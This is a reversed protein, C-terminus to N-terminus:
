NEYIKTGGFLSRFFSGIKDFFGAKSKMEISDTALVEGDASYLTATFTTKGNSDSVIRLSNGNNIEETKFKGNSATWKVYSGAPATGEINAHLKIGDKHRIETRSPTQISFAYNNEEVIAYYSFHTTEFVMNGNEYTAPMKEVTGTETNVYYVFSRNPDYGEPLPMRITVKGTPQTEVGNVTMTIDYIFKQSADLTTDIVDFANGDFSEEVIIEVVGSYDNGNYEMSVGTDEDTVVAKVLMPITEEAVVEGCVTCKKVKLGDAEYTADLIVEWNGTTHGTAPIVTSTGLTDGCIACVNYEMGAVTCTAPITITKSTHSAAVYDSVYSDGCVSCTYTTYGQETCTPATVTAEYAHGALPLEANSGSVVVGCDNCVTYSNNGPTTCTSPTAAVNTVNSHACEGSENVTIACTKNYVTGNYTFKATITANGAGVATVVGNNVTAVSSNSTIWEINQGSPTTTATLTVSNGVDLTNATSSLSITPRKVTVIFTTTKGNYTVTVTKTGVASSSFGSTTFGSTATATSGDSYTLTLVLGTTDLSDGIYYTTKSPNTSITISELTKASVGVYVKFTTIFEGYTVTITQEGTKLANFGSVTYGTVASTSGDTYNAMVVLGTTDLSERLAYEVKNPLTGVYIGTVKPRTDIIEVTFTKKYTTGAPSTWQVTVTCNGEASSDFGSVVYDTVVETTNDSYNVTVVMGTNDFDEGLVYTMKDPNSTITISKVDRIHVTIEYTMGSSTTATIITDGTSQAYIDHGEIRVKTNSATLTVVDNANEPYFEFEARYTEGRDLNVIESGDKLIIGQAPISIDVFKFGYENAFTEAYSGTKGYITTKKPYSFATSDISTVSEPITVSTLGTCNMFAQSGITTLGKPLVISVLGPCDKFVDTGISTISYDAITVDSLAECGMFAQNGITKTSQPIYVKELAVCNQFANGYIEKTSEPLIAEKLSSCGRFAYQYIKKLKPNEAFTFNELSTCNEFVSNYINEVNAPIEITKLSTCGKFMGETIRNINKSIKAIELSSCNAFIYNGITTM